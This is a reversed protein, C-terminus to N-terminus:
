VHLASVIPIIMSIILSSLSRKIIAQDMAVHTLAMLLIDPSHVIWKTVCPAIPLSNLKSRMLRTAYIPRLMIVLPHLNSLPLMVMPPHDANRSISPLLKAKVM